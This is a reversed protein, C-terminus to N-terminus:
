PKVFPDIETGPAPSDRLRERVRVLRPVRGHRGKQEKAEQVGGDQRRAQKVEGVVM